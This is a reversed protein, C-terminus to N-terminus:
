LADPARTHAAVRAVRRIIEAPPATRLIADAFPTADSRITLEGTTPVSVIIVAGAEGAGTQPPVDALTVSAGSSELVAKLAARDAVDPSAVIVHTGVLILPPGAPPRSEASERPLRVTFTAGHGVGPSAVGVSGGHLEVLQRVVALGLGLGGHQRSLGSSGQRFPDFIEPLLASDIGAGTDTVTLVADEGDVAVSVTVRGGPPTFQAANSLLNTAIQQLRGQDGAVFVPASRVVLELQRREMTARVGDCAVAIVNALDVVRIELQLKGKTVRSVDLLDNILQAQMRANREISDLARERADDTLATHRLQYIWGMLANLPTRLEHSLTAIFEDKLRNAEEALERARKEGDLALALQEEARRVRLLSHVTAIFVDGDVPEVLYVDAGTELGKVRDNASIATNSIQLIPLAPLTANEAARLRRVVEYGSIDPLNVDLVVLDPKTKAILRLADGGTAAELVTFNARRLTQGKVFRGADEDDVVLITAIPTM